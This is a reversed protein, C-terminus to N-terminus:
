DVVGCAVRAGSDGTLLTTADPVSGTASTYRDAPINAFNDRGAHVMVASGDTDRLDALTFRDTVFSAYAHGHATVLLSPLDGVHDGHNLPGGAFHGGATTFPGTPADAECLGIAHIHFGHFGPTLGRALGTVLVHGRAQRLWVKGVTSGDVGHLTVKVVRSSAHGREESGTTANATFAGAVAVLAATGALALRRTTTRAPM